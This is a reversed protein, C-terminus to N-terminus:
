TPQALYEKETKEIMKKYKEPILVFKKIAKKNWVCGSPVDLLNLWVFAVTLSMDLGANAYKQLDEESLILSRNKYYPIVEVGGFDNAVRVWDILVFGVKSDPSDKKVYGYKFTFNDFADLTDLKAVKNIDPKNWATYYVKIFYFYKYREQFMFKLWSTGLAYWIGYPKWRGEQISAPHTIIDDMSFKNTSAHILVKHKM